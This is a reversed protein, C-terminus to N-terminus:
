SAMRSCLSGATSRRSRDDTAEADLLYFLKCEKSERFQVNRESAYGAVVRVMRSRNASRLETNFGAGIRPRITTCITHPAHNANNRRSDRIHADFRLLTEWPFIRRSAEIRFSRVRPRNRGHRPRRRRNEEIRLDRGCLGSRIAIRERHPFAEPRERAFAHLANPLSSLGLDLVIPPRVLIPARPLSAQM